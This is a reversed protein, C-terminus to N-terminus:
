NFEVFYSICFGLAIGRAFFPMETPDNEKPRSLLNALLCGQLMLRENEECQFM